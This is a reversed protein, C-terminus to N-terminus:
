KESWINNIKDIPWQLQSTINCWLYVSANNNDDDDDDFNLYHIDARRVCM